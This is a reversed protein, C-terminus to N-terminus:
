ADGEERQMRNWRDVARARWAILEDITLALLESLPWHFIAAIDAM